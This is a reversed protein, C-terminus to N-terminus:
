KEFDKPLLGWKKLGEFYEDITPGVNYKSLKEWEKDLEEQSMSSLQEHLRKVIDSM